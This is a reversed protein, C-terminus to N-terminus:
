ATVNINVTTTATQPVGIGTNGLDNATITLTEPGLKGTAKYGLTSLAADIDALTGQFTMSETGNAGSTFTLGTTSGLRLSGRTVQLTVQEVAGNADVDSVSIPNGNATSFYLWNTKGVSQTATPATVIPPNNVAVVDITGKLVNSDQFGDNVVYNVTRVATSPNASTNRYTINRLASQFQSLTAAGSASTLTLVGTTSNFSGTIDGTTGNPVFGLVDQGAVYGGSIFITAKAATTSCLDSLMISPAIATASNNETYALSIPPGSLVPAARNVQLDGM